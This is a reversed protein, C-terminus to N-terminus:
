PDKVIFGASSVCRRDRYRIHSHKRWGRNDILQIVAPMLLGSAGFRQDSVMALGSHGKFWRAVASMTVVGTSLCTGSGPLSASYFEV